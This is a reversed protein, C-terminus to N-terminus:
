QQARADQLPCESDPGPARRPSSVVASLTRPSCRGGHRPTRPPCSSGHGLSRPAAGVTLGLLGPPCCWYMPTRPPCGSGRTPIESPVQQRAQADQPCGGSCKPTRPLWMSSLRSPGPSHHSHCIPCLTGLAALTMTLLECPCLATRSDEGGLLGLCGQACSAVSPVMGCHGWPHHGGGATDSVPRWHCHSCCLCSHPQPGQEAQTGM